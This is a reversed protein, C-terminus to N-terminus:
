KGCLEAFNITEQVPEIEGLISQVQPVIDDELATDDWDLFFKTFEVEKKDSLGKVAIYYMLTSDGAGGIKIQIGRHTIIKGILKDKNELCLEKFEQQSENCEVVKNSTQTNFRKSSM